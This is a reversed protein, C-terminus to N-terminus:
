EYCRVNPRKVTIAIAPSIKSLLCSLAGPSKVVPASRMMNEVVSIPTFHMRPNLVRVLGSLSSKLGSDQVDEDNGRIFVNSSYRPTFFGSLKETHPLGSSTNSHQIGSGVSACRLKKM